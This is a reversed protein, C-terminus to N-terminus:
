KDYYDSQYNFIIEDYSLIVNNENLLYIILRFVTLPNMYYRTQIKLLVTLRESQYQCYDGYYSPPCLCYSKNNLISSKIPYGFNCLSIDTNINILSLTRKESLLM